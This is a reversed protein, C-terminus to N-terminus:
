YPSLLCNCVHLASTGQGTGHPRMVSLRVSCFNIVLSLAEAPSVEGYKWFTEKNEWFLFFKAAQVVALNLLVKASIVMLSVTAAPTSAIIVCPFVKSICWSIVKPMILLTGYFSAQLKLGWPSKPGKNSNKSWTCQVREFAKRSVKIRKIKKYSANQHCCAWRFFIDLNEM